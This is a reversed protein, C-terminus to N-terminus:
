MVARVQDTTASTHISCAPGSGCVSFYDAWNLIINHSPIKHHRPVDFEQWFHRQMQFISKTKFYTKVSFIFDNVTYNEM